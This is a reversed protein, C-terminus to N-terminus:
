TFFFFSLLSNNNPLCISVSNSSVLIFQLVITFVKSLRTATEVTTGFLPGDVAIWVGKNMFGVACTRAENGSGGPFRNGGIKTTPFRM